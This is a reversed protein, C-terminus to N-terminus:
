GRGLKIAVTGLPSFPGCVMPSHVAVMVTIKLLKLPQSKIEALDLPSSQTLPQNSKIPEM